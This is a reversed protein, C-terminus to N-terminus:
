PVIFLDDSSGLAMHLCRLERREVFYVASAKMLRGLDTIQCQIGHSEGMKVHYVTEIKERLEKLAGRM